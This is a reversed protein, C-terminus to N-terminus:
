RRNKSLNIAKKCDVHKDAYPIEKLRKQPIPEHCICCIGYRGNEMRLRAMQIKWLRKRCNAVKKELVAFSSDIIVDAIHNSFAPVPPPNLRLKRIEDDAEYLEKTIKNEEETLRIEFYEYDSDDFIQRKIEKETTVELYHIQNPDLRKKKGGIKCLFKPPHTPIYGIIEIREGTKKYVANIPLPADFEVVKFINKEKAM